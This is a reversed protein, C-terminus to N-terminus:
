KLLPFIQEYIAPSGACISENRDGRFSGYCGGAEEVILRGACVDWEHLNMEWYADLFGAGVYSLDLAASGLRRVGRVLPLVRGFNDLNNDPNLNKDVPFGTAVVAREILRNGRCHIPEGNLKAGQGRVATFLEGLYPGFVVGGVTEGRYCMGISVAFAPLGESFNTTGGLPDIVWRWESTSGNDGSEESLIADSSYEKRIGGVVIREAASDAATVIDSENFKVHVELGPHRFYRLLEAGAEEALTTALTMRADLMTEFVDM